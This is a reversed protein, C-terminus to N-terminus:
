SCYIINNNNIHKKVSDIPLRVAFDPGYYFSTNEQFVGIIRELMNLDYQCHFKGVTADPLQCPM